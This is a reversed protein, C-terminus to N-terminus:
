YKEGRMLVCYSSSLLDLHDVFLCSGVLAESPADSSLSVLPPRGEKDFSTKVSHASITKQLELNNDWLKKFLSGGPTDQLKRNWILWISRVDLVSKTFSPLIYHYIYPTDKCICGHIVQLTNIIRSVRIVCLMKCKLKNWKEMAKKNLTITATCELVIIKTNIDLIKYQLQQKRDSKTTM